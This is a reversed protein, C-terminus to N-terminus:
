RLKSENSEYEGNLPSRTVWRLDARSPVVFTVRAPTKEL